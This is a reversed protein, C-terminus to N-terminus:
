LRSFYGSVRRFVLSIKCAYVIHVFSVSLTRDISQSTACNKRDVPRLNSNLWSYCGGKGMVDLNNARSGVIVATNVYSTIFFFQRWIYFLICLILYVYSHRLSYKENVRIRVRYLIKTRFSQYTIWVFILNLVHSICTGSRVGDFRSYYRLQRKRRTRLIKYALAVTCCCTLWDKCDNKM